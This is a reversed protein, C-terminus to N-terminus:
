HCPVASKCNTANTKSLLEWGFKSCLYTSSAATLDNCTWKNNSCQYSTIKKYTSGVFGNPNTCNSEVLEGRDGCGINIWEGDFCKFSCEANEFTNDKKIRLTRTVIANHSSAPLNKQADAPCSAFQSCNVPTCSQQTTPKTDSCLSDQAKKKNQDQCYVTRTQTKSSCSCTSWSSTYWSYVNIAIPVDVPNNVSCKLNSAPKSKNRCFSDAVQIEKKTKSTTYYCGYVKTGSKNANCGEVKWYYDINIQKCVTISNEVVKTEDTNPMCDSVINPKEWRWDRNRWVLNYVKACESEILNSNTYDSCSPINKRGHELVNPDLEQSSNLSNLSEEIDNLKDTNYEINNQNQKLPEKLENVTENLARGIDQRTNEISNDALCSVASFALTLILLNLFKM